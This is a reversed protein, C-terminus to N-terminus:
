MRHGMFWWLGRQGFLPECGTDGRTICAAVASVLDEFRRVCIAEPVLTAITDVVNKRDGSSLPDSPRELLVFRLYHRLQKLRRDFEREEHETLPPRYGGTLPRGDGPTVVFTLDGQLIDSTSISCDRFLSAVHRKAIEALDTHTM